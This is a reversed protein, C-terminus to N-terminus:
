QTQVILAATGKLAMETYTELQGAGLQAVGRHVALVGITHISVASSDVVVDPILVGLSVVGGPVIGTTKVVAVVFTGAPTSPGVRLEDGWVIVDTSGNSYILVPTGPGPGGPTVPGGRGSPYWGIRTSPGSLDYYNPTAM